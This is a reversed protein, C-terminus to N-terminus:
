APGSDPGEDKFYRGPTRGLHRRFMAIFASTSDYGLALAVATVSEGDALRELSRQLRLQRRWAGLSMGTERQFLRGLTRPSAAAVAAWEGLGKEDAPNELLAETVRRLRPDTPRPLHFAAVKLTRIEDLAVGVLREEAGGTPYPQPM